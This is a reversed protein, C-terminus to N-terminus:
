GHFSAFCRLASGYTNVEATAKAVAIDELFPRPASGPGSIRASMPSSASKLSLYAIPALDVLCDSGLTVIRDPRHREIAHRAARAQRLLAARALVANEVEPTEGPRPAPVPVTEVPGGAAPALRALLESGLHYEHRNGGQWQPMHLRLTTGKKVSM